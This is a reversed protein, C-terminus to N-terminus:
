NLQWFNKLIGLYSTHKAGNEYISFVIGNIPKSILYRNYRTYNGEIGEHAKFDSMTPNLITLLLLIGGVIYLIRKKTMNSLKISLLMFLLNAGAVFVFTSALLIVVIGVLIEVISM